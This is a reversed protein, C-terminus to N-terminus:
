GARDSAEDELVLETHALLRWAAQAFHYADGSDTGDIIHRIACDLHDTSKDRDWHLPKDPHHQKSGDYSVRAIAALARPFYAIVGSYIPTKKREEANEPLVL